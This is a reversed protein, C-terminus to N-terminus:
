KIEKDRISQATDYDKSAKVNKYFTEADISNTKGTYKFFVVPEKRDRSSKWGDPAYKTDFKTWSVPEFGMKTYFDFNGDFSDLKKGGKSVAYEMLARASDKNGNENIKSCVSVIDGDNTIAITSGNSTKYCKMKNYDAASHSTDDVRWKMKDPQSAKAQKLDKQFETGSRKQVTIKNGKSDTFSSTEKSSSSSSSSNSSSGGSGGGSTFKGTKGDHNPNYRKMEEIMREWKSYDIM